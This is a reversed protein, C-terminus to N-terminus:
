KGFYTVERKADEETGLMEGRLEYEKQLENRFWVLSETPASCLFDDVHVVLMLKRDPNYFASPQTASTVFNLSVLTRRVEEQWIAPADRTGYMSYRLLGCMGEEGPRQDEKPLEVYVERTAPAKLHAKKVDIVIM